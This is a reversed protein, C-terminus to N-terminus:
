ILREIKKIEYKRVQVVLVTFVILSMLFNKALIMCGNLTLYKREWGLVIAEMDNIKNLAKYKYESIGDRAIWVVCVRIKDVRGLKVGSELYMVRSLRTPSEVM